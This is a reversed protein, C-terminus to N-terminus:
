TRLISFVTHDILSYSSKKKKKKKPAYLHSHFHYANLAGNLWTLKSDQTTEIGLFKTWMHQGHGMLLTM